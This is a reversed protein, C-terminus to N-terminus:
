GIILLRLIAFTIGLLIIIGGLPLLTVPVPLVRADLRKVNNRTHQDNASMRKLTKTFLAVKSCMNLILNETSFDLM